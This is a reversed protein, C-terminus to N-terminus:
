FSIKLGAVSYVDAIGTNIEKENIYKVELFFNDGIEVGAFVQYRKNRDGEDTEVGPGIEAGIGIYPSITKHFPALM